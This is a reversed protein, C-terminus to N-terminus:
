PTRLAWWSEQTVSPLQLAPRHEWPLWPWPHCGSPILASYGEQRNELGATVNVEGMRGTFQVRLGGADGANVQPGILSLLDLMQNTHPALTFSQAPQAQGSATLSQISVTRQAGTANSLSLFGGVGADRAWWLGELTQAAPEATAIATFPAMYSLSLSPSGFTTQAIIAFPFGTFRLTASGYQSLHSALAAPLSALANNINVTAVGATPLNVAPLDYETGDAMFLAPSVTMPGTVLRNKIQITSTFGTDTRWLGCNISWNGTQAPASAAKSKV